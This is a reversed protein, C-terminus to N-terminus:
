CSHDHRPRVVSKEKAFKVLCNGLVEHVYTRKYSVVVRRSDASLLFIVTSIIEHDIKRFTHSQAPVLSADGPDASLCADAALSRVSQAVCGPNPCCDHGRVNRM